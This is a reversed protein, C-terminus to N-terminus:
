RINSCFQLLEDSTTKNYRRFDYEIDIIYQYFIDEDPKYYHQEIHGGNRLHFHKIIDLNLKEDGVHLINSITNNVFISKKTKVNHIM